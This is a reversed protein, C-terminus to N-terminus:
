LNQGAALREARDWDGLGAFALGPDDYLAASLFLASRSWGMFDDSHIKLDGRNRRLQKILGTCPTM